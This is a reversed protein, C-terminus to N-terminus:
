TDEGAFVELIEQVLERDPCGMKIDDAFSTGLQWVLVGRLVQRLRDVEDALRPVDARAHAIFEADVRYQETDTNGRENTIGVNARASYKVPPVPKPFVTQVMAIDIGSATQDAEADRYFVTGKQTTGDQMTVHMSADTTLRRVKASPVTIEGAYDTNFVLRGDELQLLTGTLKDGNHVILEDASVANVLGGVALLILLFNTVSRLILGKRHFILLPDNPHTNKKPFFASTAGESENAVAAPPDHITIPFVCTGRRSLSVSATPM